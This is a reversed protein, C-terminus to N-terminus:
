QFCVIRGDSLRKAMMRAKACESARLEDPSINPMNCGYVRLVIMFLFFALWFRMM